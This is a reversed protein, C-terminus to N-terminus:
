STDKVQAISSAPLISCSYEPVNAPRPSIHSIGFGWCDVSIQDYGRGNTSVPKEKVLPPFFSLTFVLRHRSLATRCHLDRICCWKRLYLGLAMDPLRGM